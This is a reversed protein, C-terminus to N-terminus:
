KVQIIKFDESKKERSKIIFNEDLDSILLDIDQIKYKVLLRRLAVKAKTSILTTHAIRSTKRGNSRLYRLITTPHVGLKLALDAPAVGSDYGQLLQQIEDSKLKKNAL